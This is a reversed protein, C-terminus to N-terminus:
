KITKSFRWKLQLMLTTSDASESVSNSKATYNLQLQMAPVASANHMFNYNVGGTLTTLINENASSDTPDYRDYRGILDIDAGAIKKLNLSPMVMLANATHDKGSDHPYSVDKSLYEVWLDVPGYAARLLGDLLMQTNRNANDTADALLQDRESSNAMISGGITIGALPTLRLNALLAPDINDKLNIGYAKYGEGNYMGLAYEGWGGPIYGNLTIGYDASNAFKYEDSPAKGILKYNWDYITGFYVKQLGVTTTLDPVPILHSFDLYAYKLKLGAGDKILDTSFIDVTFRGKVTESFKPELGLYGRELSFFNKLTADSGDPATGNEMTWRNWMEGAIKLEQATLGALLLIGLVTLMLLKKM